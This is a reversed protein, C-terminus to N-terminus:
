LQSLNQILNLNVDQLVGTESNATQVAVLELADSANFDQLLARGHSDVAIERVKDKDFGHGQLVAAHESALVGFSGGEVRPRCMMNIAETAGSVFVVNETESGVLLAVQKRATEIMSKAKRGEAHISSANSPLELARIVAEHAEPRMPSTANYDCYIRNKANM